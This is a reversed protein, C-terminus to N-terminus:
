VWSAVLERMKDLDYRLIEAGRSISIKEQEIARRVLSSLRDEFFDYRSLGEPEPGSAKPSEFWNHLFVDPSLGRPEIEKGLRQGTRRHYEANFFAYIRNDEIAESWLRYLVVAYSVRFIRKAKLVRDYFHLGRTASWEHRFVDSPMLFHSAFVDAEREQEPDESEQQCDYGHLHLLLHGLEHVASFIWREVSIREWINVVIAPGGEDASVSLASFRDTNRVIPYMKIGASELLGCINRVTEDPGLKLSARADRAATISREKGGRKRSLSKALDGLSYPIRDDLIEELYNFDDLWRSVEALIMERGKIKKSARFRASKLERAPAVLDQVKVDLASAISRLSSLRPATQGTEIKRYGEESLQARSAVKARSLQRAARIRKINLSIDKVSV